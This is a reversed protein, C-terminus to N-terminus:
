LFIGEKYLYDKLETRLRHLRVTATNEKLGLERAIQRISDGFWYRRVFLIRHEKQLTDLFCNIACGLARADLAEELTNDPLCDSLEDLSLDYHSNRKQATSTRLQKLAINRAVRCVYVSLPEPQEPPIRNWLALYTDNVAEEADQPDNLINTAIRHLRSGYKESLATIASDTRTFFLRIIKSDDM